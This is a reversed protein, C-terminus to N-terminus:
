RGSAIRLVEFPPPPREGLIEELTTVSILCRGGIHSFPLEGRTILEYATSVGIGLLLATERVTYMRRAPTDSM